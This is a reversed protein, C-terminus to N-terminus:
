TLIFDQYNIYKINEKFNGNQSGRYILYGQIKYLSSLESQQYKEILIKIPTIMERKPTDNSKIEIFSLQHNDKDEIILDCELGLNDRFYYLDQNKGYHMINKKIEAIVYNEFIQGDLPGRRLLNTNEIGTCYCILGTDYFCLKPRKVIRKGLNNHYSPLLFIIYSAELISIWSQITKVTVGIKKALGSMNLEKSARAALLMILRHFDRLNGINHLTRVDREIYNQLYAGYWEKTDKYERTILEPYGGLLIHSKRLSPPTEKLELPLLSLLGIRGALSETISKLLNFQSSGTLIYRGYNQRHNDIEIKLYNFIQPVRQVEDFIIHKKYEKIFGRPDNNFFDVNLPDDFSLYTYKNGFVTKLTTSKGSQRPGTIGVAPFIKLYHSIQNEINRKLYRM